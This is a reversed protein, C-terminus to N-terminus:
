VDNRNGFMIVDNSLKKEAIQKEIKNRQSGEGILFLKADSNQKKIEYFVDILFMHNKVERLNGVHIIVLSNEVNYKKRIRQRLQSNYVFDETKIANPLIIVENKNLSKKGFLWLAAKRSVAMKHTSFHNTPLKIINKITNEINFAELSTRSHAIRIPINATKAAKLIIGSWQNLNSHVIKYNSHEKFFIKLERINKIINNMSISSLKYIKGGLEQIEDDFFGKEESLCLF